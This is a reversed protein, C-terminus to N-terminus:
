LYNDAIYQKLGSCNKVGGFSFITNKIALSCYDIEREKKTQNIIFDSAPIAYVVFDKRTARNKIYLKDDEFSLCYNHPDNDLSYMTIFCVIIAGLEFFLFTQVGIFIGLSALSMMVVFLYPIMRKKQEMMYKEDTETVFTNM